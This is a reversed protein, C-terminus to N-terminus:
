VDKKLDGIMENVDAYLKSDNDSKMEATIEEYEDVLSQPYEIEDEILDIVESPSLKLDFPLGKENISKKLFLTIATTLDLGIKDFIYMAEMKINDEIRINLNKKM